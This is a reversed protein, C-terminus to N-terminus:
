FSSPFMDTPSNYMINLQRSVNMPTRCGNPSRPDMLQKDDRNPTSSMEIATNRASQSTIRLKNLTPTDPLYSGEMKTAKAGM